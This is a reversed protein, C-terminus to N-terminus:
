EQFQNQNSTRQNTAPPTAYPDPFGDSETILAQELIVRGEKYRTFIYVFIACFIHKNENQYSIVILTDNQHNFLIM